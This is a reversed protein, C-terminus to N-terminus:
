WSWQIIRDKESDAKVEYVTGHISVEKDGRVIRAGLTTPACYGVVLITNKPDSINNALHHKVRGAEMMGSASIIVCPKKHDNLKKSDEVRILIFFIICVLLILIQKLFMYFIRM